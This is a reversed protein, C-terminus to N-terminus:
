DFIQNTENNNVNKNNINIDNLKLESQSEDFLYDSDLETLGEKWFADEEKSICLDSPVRTKENEIMMNLKKMHRKYHVEMNGKEAFRKECGKVKCVYKKEGTHTRMHAVLTSKRGFKSECLTCSFKRKNMHYIEIHDKLHGKTKYTKSCQDCKFPRSNTHFNMHTKLNGKENFSKNCVTCIFPRAGTHTRIHVELRSRNSYAKTCNDYPCKYPLIKNHISVIHNKLNGNTSFPRQCINCVFLEM